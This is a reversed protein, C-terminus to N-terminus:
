QEQNAQLQKPSEIKLEDKILMIQQMDLEGDIMDLIADRGKQMIALEELFLCLSSILLTLSVALIGFSLCDIIIFHFSGIPYSARLILTIISLSFIIFSWRFLTIPEVIMRLILDNIQFGFIKKGLLHNFYVGDGRYFSYGVINQKSRQIHYKFHAFVKGTLFVLFITFPSVFFLILNTIFREFTYARFILFNSWVREYLGYKNNFHYILYFIIFNLLSYALLALLFSAVKLAREGMKERLALRAPISLTSILFFYGLSIISLLFNRQFFLSVSNFTNPNNRPNLAGQLM